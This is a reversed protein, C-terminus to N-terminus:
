LGHQARQLRRQIRDRGIFGNPDHDDGPAARREAGAVIELFHTGVVVRSEVARQEGLAPLHHQGDVAQRLRHDRSHVANGGGGAAM